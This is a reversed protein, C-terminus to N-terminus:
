FQFYFFDSHVQHSFSILMFLLVCYVSWRLPTWKITDIPNELERSNILEGAILFSSGIGMILFEVSFLGSIKSLSSFNTFGSVNSVIQWAHEISDALFFVSAYSWFALTILINIMVRVVSKKRFVRDMLPRRVKRTLRALIIITGHLAGFLLYKWHAGHWFGITLFILMVLLYKGVPSSWKRVFPRFMYDNIWTTLSIHWRQWMESISESLYPRKFNPMLRYGMLRASGIAMDTYASFDAYIWLVSAFICLLYTGGTYAEPNTFVPQFLLVLYDAVIIKKFLGWLFLRGGISINDWNFKQVKRFQPLLRTSREIPGAILQPFFAVYLAFYGFHREPKRNGRYLDITYSLTQFTYFSIGIPLLIDFKPVAYEVDFFQLLHRLEENFFGLYKFVFLLGLNIFLSFYLYPKRKRKEQHKGIKIGVWYDVLTSVFVLILFDFRWYAYFFYSAALLLAWRYQHRLLFFLLVILPLFLIYELSTFLM